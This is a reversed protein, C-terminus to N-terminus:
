LAFVETLAKGITMGILFLAIGAAYYIFRWEKAGHLAYLLGRGEAKLRDRQETLAAIEQELETIEENIMEAETM